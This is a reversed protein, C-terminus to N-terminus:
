QISLHLLLKNGTVVLPLLLLAVTVDAVTVILAVVKVIAVTITKVTVIYNYSFNKCCCSTCCRIPLM